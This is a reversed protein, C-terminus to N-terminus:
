VEAKFATDTGKNSIYSLMLLGSVHYLNSWMHILIEPWVVSADVWIVQYESVTVKVSLWIMVLKELCAGACYPLVSILKILFCKM